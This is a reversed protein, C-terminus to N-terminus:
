YTFYTWKNEAAMERLLTTKGIQYRGTLILTGGQEINEKVRDKEGTREWHGECYIDRIEVNLLHKLLTSLTKVPTLVGPVDGWLECIQQHLHENCEEGSFLILSPSYGVESFSEMLTSFKRKSDEDLFRHPSNKVNGILLKRRAPNPVLHETSVTGEVLLFDADTGEGYELFELRWRAPSSVSFFNEVFGQGQDRLLEDMARCILDELGFGRLRNFAHNQTTAENLLKWSEDHYFNLKLHKRKSTQQLFDQLGLVRSVVGQRNLTAIIRGFEKMMRPNDLYGDVINPALGPVGHRRHVLKLMYEIHETTLNAPLEKYQQLFYSWM